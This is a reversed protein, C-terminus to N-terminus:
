CPFCRIRAPSKRAEKTCGLPSTLWLRPTTKGMGVQYEKMQALSRELSELWSTTANVVYTEQIRAMRENMRGMAVKKNATSLCRCRINFAYRYPM